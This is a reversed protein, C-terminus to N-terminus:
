GWWRGGSEVYIAECWSRVAQPDGVPHRSQRKDLWDDSDLFGFRKTCEYLCGCVAAAYDDSGHRPRKVMDRGSPSVTRELGRLERLLRPHDPLAVIGQTFLPICELYILSASTLKCLRYRLGNREWAAKLFEAAFNDGFVEGNCGFRKVLDSLERTVVAPDLPPAYGRLASIVFRGDKRYGIACTYHCGRGGSSDIFCRYRQGPVPPLEPSRRDHDVAAALTAEDLYGSVDQRFEALWEAAGASPDEALAADIISQPVTPNMLKTPARWFLVDSDDRGYHRQFADFLAGRAAFPSSACLMMSNPLTALGPRIANIIQFDSRVSDSTPMQAIEDLLACCITYSRPASPSAAFIEIVINNSLTISDKTTGVILKKLMASANLLGLCYRWITRASRKDASIIMVTGIEGVQLHRKWNTFCAVFIAILALTFSKGSRRGCILWAERFPRTPPVTRGTCQRFLELQPASLPLAFLAALFCFWPAWTDGRFNRGFINPDRVADLINM